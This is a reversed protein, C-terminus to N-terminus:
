AVERVIDAKGHGGEGKSASMMDLLEREPQSTIYITINEHKLQCFMEDIRRATTVFRLASSSSFRSNLAM